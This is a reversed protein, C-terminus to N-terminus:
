SCCCCDWGCGCGCGCCLLGDLVLAAVGALVLVVAVAVTGPIGGTGEIGEVWTGM